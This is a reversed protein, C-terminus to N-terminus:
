SSSCVLDATDPTLQFGIELTPIDGAFRGLKLLGSLNIGM